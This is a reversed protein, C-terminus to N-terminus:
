LQLAAALSAVEEASEAIIESLTDTGVVMEISAAAGRDKIPSNLGRPIENDRFPSPLPALDEALLLTDGVTHPPIALYGDWYVEVAEMAAQPVKLAQLVKRGLEVKLAMVDDERWEAADGELLAPFDSARAILYFGGIDHIIAAFLALEPDVQTVRRALTHALATVHATHQWLQGAMDRQRPTAVGRGTAIQRALFGTALARVNRFGLRAIATRVDGISRGSRNFATANAMAVVRATLVPEAQVLRAATPLPIDPDDLATCVRLTVTAHTQFDLPGHSADAILQQLIERRDRPMGAM